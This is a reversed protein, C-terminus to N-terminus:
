FVRVDGLPAGGGRQCWKGWVCFYIKGNGFNKTNKCEWSGLGWKSLIVFVFLMIFSFLYSHM